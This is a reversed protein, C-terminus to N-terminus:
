AYRSARWWRLWRWTDSWPHIKSSGLRPLMQVPVFEVRKGARAFALVMESEIEFRDTRLPIGALVELNVLRFGCQSDALPIGARKALRRTMWRNVRRRLWPMRGMDRLRSGIVLPACTTEAGALLAPIDEAAHQGDGDLILAWGFGRDRLQQFGVRLAAGKGRNTAHQVVEAGAARAYAATQDTSGDDVVLVAPLHPLVGKVVSAISREENFCPVLAACNAKWDM